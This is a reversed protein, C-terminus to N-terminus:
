LRERLVREAAVEHEVEERAVLGFGPVFLPRARAVFLLPREIRAQFRLLNELRFLVFLFAVLPLFPQSFARFLLSFFFLRRHHRRARPSFLLLFSTTQQQAKGGRKAHVKAGHADFRM